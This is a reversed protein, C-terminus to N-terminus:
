EGMCKLYLKDATMGDPNVEDIFRGNSMILIRTCVDLLEELESSVVLSSIGKRSLEWIIKFIQQKTAVDIGRSPEDFFLIEPETNLMRGLIVKQQNGGSLASMVTEPSPCKISMAVQQKEYMQRCIKSNVFIGKGMQEISAFTANTIVTDNAIIGDRKRDEQVMGFGLKKMKEPTPHEIRSGKFWIEGSQFDDAGYISRLLETRGAGMMGAIGLIESKKLSFSINRFKGTRSLNRVELVTESGAKIDKPRELSSINGFMMKLIEPRSTEEITVKGIYKGDRLVLCTDAVDWLEQLRHTVFIIVVDKERLRRMIKFLTQAEAQSLASTPEDLQLVSPNHSMAKAIEIMQMQSVTLENVYTKPNIEIGLDDLLEATMQYTKKWDVLGLNNLPLRGAFVNEAVTISPVLSLEQFVTAIGQELAEKPNAMVVEKGNLRVTGKSPSEAGAFIKLLTSKGSGNKGIFAHIKGSEFGISVDDLACTGPYLKTIHDASISGM